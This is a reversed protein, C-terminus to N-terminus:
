KFSVFRSLVFSLSSPFRITIQSQSEIQRSHPMYLNHVLCWVYRCCSRRFSFTSSSSLSFYTPELASKGMKSIANSVLGPFILREFWFPHALWYGIYTSVCMKVRMGVNPRWKHSVNACGRGFHIFWNTSAMRFPLNAM